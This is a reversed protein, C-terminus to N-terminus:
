KEKTDTAQLFEKLLTVYQEPQNLYPFHGVSGLNYIEARPYTHRLLARLEPPILPDNEAEIIAITQPLKEPLPFDTVVCQYRAVFQSKTMLGYGQELLYARVLESYGSAPYVVDKINKRFASMIIWEPLWPLLAGRFRNEKRILDNPPFTNAFVAKRFREPQTACLYQALYGGLSSGVVHTTRVQEYDLLQLIGDALRDLPALPPYTPALIRFQGSLVEIQQWWIDGAGGMGHLFLLPPGEKGVRLYSWETDGLIVTKQPHAARFRRLSERLDPKVSRYLEAFSRTRNPLSFVVIVLLLFLSIVQKFM